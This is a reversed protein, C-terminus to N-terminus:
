SAIIEMWSTKLMAVVQPYLEKPNTYGFGNSPQTIECKHGICIYSGKYDEVPLVVAAYSVSNSKYKPIKESYASTGPQIVDNQRLPDNYECIAIQHWGVGYACAWAEIVFDINPASGGGGPTPLVVVHDDEDLIGCDISITENLPRIQWGDNSFTGSTRRDPTSTHVQQHFLGTKTIRAADAM